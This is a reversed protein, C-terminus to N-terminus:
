EYHLAQVIQLRTAQRAPLLSALVSILLAAAVAAVLGALPFSYRIQTTLSAGMLTALAYGLALGALMGLAAGAAGMLLSEAVVTRRIQRRTAGIARLLGIERTRELVGVALTNLMGLVSPLILVGLVLYIGNTAASLVQKQEERWEAGWHISM